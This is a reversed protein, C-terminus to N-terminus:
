SHGSTFYMATCGYGDDRDAASVDLVSSPERDTAATTFFLLGTSEVITLFLLGGFEETGSTGGGGSGTARAGSAATLFLGSSYGGAGPPKAIQVGIRGV